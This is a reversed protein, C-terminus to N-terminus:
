LAESTILLDRTRIETPGKKNGILQKNLFFASNLYYTLDFCHNKFRNLGQFLTAVSHKGTGKKAETSCNMFCHQNRIVLHILRTNSNFM